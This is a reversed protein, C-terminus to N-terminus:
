KRMNLQDLPKFAWFSAFTPAWEKLVSKLTKLGNKKM